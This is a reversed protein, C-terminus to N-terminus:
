DSITSRFHKSGGQRSSRRRALGGRRNARRQGFHLCIHGGAQEMEPWPPNRGPPKERLFSNDPKMVGTNQELGVTNQRLAKTEIEAWRRVTEFYIRKPEACWHKAGFCYFSM